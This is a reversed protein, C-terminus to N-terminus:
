LCRCFLNTCAKVTQDNQDVSPWRGPLISPSSVNYFSDTHQQMVVSMKRVFHWRLQGFSWIEKDKRMFEEVVDQPPEARLSTTAWEVVRPVQHWSWTVRGSWFKRVLLHNQLWNLLVPPEPSITFHHIFLCRSDCREIFVWVSNRECVGCSM